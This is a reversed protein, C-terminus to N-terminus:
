PYPNVLTATPAPNTPIFTPVPTATHSIQGLSELQQRALADFYYVNSSNRAQLTLVFGDMRIIRVSEAELTPIAIWIPPTNRAFEM